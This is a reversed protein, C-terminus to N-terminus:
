PDFTTPLGCDRIVTDWTQDDLIKANYVQHQITLTTELTEIELSRHDLYTRCLTSYIEDGQVSVGSRGGSCHRASNAPPCLSVPTLDCIRHGANPGLTDMM